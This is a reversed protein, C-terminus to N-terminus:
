EREVKAELRAGLGQAKKISSVIPMSYSINSADLWEKLSLNKEKIKGV